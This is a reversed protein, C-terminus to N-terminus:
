AVVAVVIVVVTVVVVVVVAAAIDGVAEHGLGEGLHHTHSRRSVAIPMKKTKQNANRSAKLSWGIKMQTFSYVCVGGSCCSREALVHMRGYVSVVWPRQRPKKKERTEGERPTDREVRVVAGICLCHEDCLELVDKDLLVVGVRDSPEWVPLAEHDQIPLLEDIM